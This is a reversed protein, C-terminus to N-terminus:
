RRLALRDVLAAASLLLLLLLTGLLGGGMDVPGSSSCGPPGGFAGSVGPECAYGIPKGTKQSKYRTSEVQDPNYVPPCNDCEDGVRDHDIDKQDPNKIDPCNDCVDGLRDSDRDSQDPNPVIRCNDCRDGLGDRDQDLQDPNKIDPCNDCVDGVGDQDRDEQKPNVVAPCNDCADGLGDLDTDKQDPNKVLPCNDCADGVCDQDSDLQDDRGPQTTNPIDPCNDCADGWGDGDRDRALEPRCMAKVGMGPMCASVIPPPAVYDDCLRTPAMAPPEPMRCSMNNKYYDTCDGEVDRPIGNCNVDKALAGAPLVALLALIPGVLGRPRNM